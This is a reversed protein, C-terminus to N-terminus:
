SQSKIVDDMAAQLDPFKFAYGAELTRKPVARQGTLIAEALQGLLIRLAFGPAPLWSPRGLAKGLAKCFDRNRVPNPSTGNFVGEVENELVFQFVGVLDDIHIWPMWQKGNGIPGGVFMKFPPKMKDLAGGDALVIGVRVIAVRLKDSKAAQEWEGCVGALFDDGLDSGEDVTEDGRPGYYGVASANILAKAGATECAERIKRTTNVRSDRLAQKRAKTWRKDAVGEGALNIAADFESPLKDWTASAAKGAFTSFVKDASRSVVTVTHGSRVLRPVLTRGVLGTGGAVIVRM